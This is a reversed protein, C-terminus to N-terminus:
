RLILPVMAQYDAFRPQARTEDVQFGDELRFGGWPAHFMPIDISLAMGPKITEFSHSAFIPPEFEVAGISHIGVYPFSSATNGAAVTRRALQEADFGRVGVSLAEECRKQADRGVTVIRELERDRQLLFPRALAAHYGEYRPAVTVTVLDGSEIIRHTSRAIIPQTNAAGSAVMTDIGFGEAGARRM